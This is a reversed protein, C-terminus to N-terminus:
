DAHGATAGGDIVMQAGTVYSSAPSALLLALGQIERTEAMRHLPTVNEFASREVPDAMRGGGISTRFPGPAIANVQIGYRALELATQRVLHAAGAKAAIYASGVFNETKIGAISTTVIIRGRGAAKMHPVVAQITNLVSTLNGAIITDWHADPIAEIAGAPNREGRATLFGPGGSVGANAFVVDLRDHRAVVRDVAAKLEERRTVDVVAMEVLGGRDCLQALAQQARAADIDFIVVKAGNDALVEACALGIGSAGGTVIAVLGTVDFLDHIKVVM